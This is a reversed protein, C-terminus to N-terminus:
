ESRKRALIVVSEGSSWPFCGFLFHFPQWLLNIPFIKAYSVGSFLTTGSRIIEFGADSVIEKWYEYTNLSIHTPDNYGQWKTKMIKSGCGALNPTTLIFLGGAVLVRHIEHLAKEPSELHEIVQMMSLADFCGNEFPIAYVDGKIFETRKTHKKAYDLLIESFDMGTIKCKPFWNEICRVFNGPGCGLDLWRFNEVDIHVDPKSLIRKWHYYTLFNKIERISNLVNGQSSPLYQCSNDM